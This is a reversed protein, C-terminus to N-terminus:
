GRSLDQKEEEKIKATESTKAVAFKPFDKDLADMIDGVSDQEGKIQVKPPV